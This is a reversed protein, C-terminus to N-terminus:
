SSQMAAKLVRAYNGIAIKELTERSSGLRQMAAFAARLDRYNAVAPASLAGM